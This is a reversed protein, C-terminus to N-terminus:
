QQMRREGQKNFTIKLRDVVASILSSIMELRNSNDKIIAPLNRNNRPNMKRNEGIGHADPSNGSEERSPSGPSQTISVIIIVTFKRGAKM